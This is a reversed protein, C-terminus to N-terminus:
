PPKHAIVALEDIAKQEKKEAELALEKARREALLEYRKEEIRVHHLREIQASYAQELQRLRAKLGEIRRNSAEIFATLTAGSTMVDIDLASEREIAHRADDIEAEAAAMGASIEQLARREQDVAQKALRQLIALSRM